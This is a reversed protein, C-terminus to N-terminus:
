FGTYVFDVEGGAFLVLILILVAVLLVKLGIRAAGLVGLAQRTHTVEASM